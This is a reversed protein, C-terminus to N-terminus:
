VLSEAIEKFRDWVNKIEQTEPAAGLMRHLAIRTASYLLATEKQGFLGMLTRSHPSLNELAQSLRIVSKMFDNLAILAEMQDKELTM